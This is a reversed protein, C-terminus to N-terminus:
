RDMAETETKVPGQTDTNRGRGKSTLRGPMWVSRVEHVFVKALYIEEKLKLLFVPVHKPVYCTASPSGKKPVPRWPLM